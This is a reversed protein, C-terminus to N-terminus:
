CKRSHDSEACVFNGVETFGARQRLENNIGSQEQESLTNLQLTKCMSMKGSKDGVLLVSQKDGAVRLCTIPCSHESELLLRMILHKKDHDISWFRVDGNVHGTVVAIGEIMWEPCDTSIACSPRANQLFDDEPGQEAVLNGNIDFVTLISGVLTVIDGTKQNISVSVATNPTVSGFSRKDRKKGANRLSRVFTLPRLDWVLFRGDSGGTVISGFTTSVDICTVKGGKHGCLTAQLKVTKGDYKWVRVTSDM